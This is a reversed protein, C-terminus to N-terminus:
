QGARDLNGMIRNMEIIGAEISDVYIIIPEASFRKITITTGAAPDFHIEEIEDIPIIYNEVKLFKAM